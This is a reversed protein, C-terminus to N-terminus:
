FTSLYARSWSKGIVSLQSALASATAPIGLWDEVEESFISFVLMEVAGPTDREESCCVMTPEIRSRNAPRGERGFSARQRSSAVNSSGM